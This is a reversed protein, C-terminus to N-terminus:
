FDPIDARVGTEWPARFGASNKLPFLLSIEDSLSGLPDGLPGLILSKPLWNAGLGGLSGWLIAFPGLIRM